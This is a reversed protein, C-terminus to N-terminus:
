GRGVFESPTVTPTVVLLLKQATIGTGDTTGVVPRSGIGSKPFVLLAVTFDGTDGAKVHATEISGTLTITVPLNPPFGTGTVTVARGPPTVGPVVQLTPTSGKGALGILHAPSGPADDTFRLVAPRDASARPSFAVTVQCTGKAAVPKGTCTDAVIPYDDPAVTSVVAVGTVTLPSGGVNTVTVTQTPGDSLLLRDGFNLPDPGAAFRPGEPPVVTKAGTGLLPVTFQRGDRLTLRLTGTRDGEKTPAFTVSVECRDAQQLVIAEGSCTQAGVAFEDSGEVVIENIVLPGTGIHDFAVVKDFTDGLEVKGFDLPTPDARLEPKFTRVFVDTQENTDEEDPVLNTADSDFAVTSGNHSMSPTTRTYPPSDGNGACTAGPPLTETCNNDTGASVLTGSLRRDEDRLRERDTVLDRVVVQCVVRDDREDTAPPLGALNILKGHTLDGRYTLCSNGDGVSWDIGDHANGNDTGFALFRGDGSLAPTIGNIIENDNDRSAIISDVPTADAAIRVVFVMPQQAVSTTWCTGDSCQVTFEEAGFAIEGGNGSISPTALGVTEDASLYEVHDPTTNVDWDVRLVETTDMDKRIVAHFTPGESEHYDAVLVVFRGDSNVDAWYQADPQLDGLPTQVTEVANGPAAVAGAVGGAEPRLRATRVANVYGYGEGADYYDEWVIRSADDSLKPYSPSDTRYRGDVNEFWQPVNVRFYEFDLGGGGARQEDFTGDGDPDRDCVLIDQDTDDDAPVINDASTVFAVYRGDASVTPQYSSGTAPVEGFELDPQAGNLAVMPKGAVKPPTFTPEDPTPSDPEPTGSTPPAPRTFQGRSILVTKNNRLDRLYVNHQSGTKLTDLQSSSAFVVATGDASLESGSGGRDAEPPPTGNGVSARVTSGPAAAAHAPTSQGSLLVVASVGALTAAVAVAVARKSRFM